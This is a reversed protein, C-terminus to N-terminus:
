KVLTCHWWSNIIAENNQTFEYREMSEINFGVRKIMDILDNKQLICELQGSLSTSNNSIRFINDEIIEGINRDNYISDYESRFDVFMLGGKKLMRYANRLLQEENEPTNLFAVGFCIIIDMTDNRIQEINVDDNLIYQEVKGTLKSKKEEYKKKTKEICVNVYDVAYVNFGFKCALITHRGTGCGWDLINGGPFVRKCKALFRVVSENPYDLNIMQFHEEWGKKNDNQYANKEM